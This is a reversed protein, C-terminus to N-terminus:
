SCTVHEISCCHLHKSFPLSEIATENHGQRGEFNLFHSVSVFTLRANIDNIM